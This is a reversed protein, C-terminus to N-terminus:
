LDTQGSTVANEELTFSGCVIWTPPFHCNTWKERCWRHTAVDERGCGYTGGHCGDEPRMQQHLVLGSEDKRGRGSRWHRSTADGELGALAMVAPEVDAVINVTSWAYHDEADKV